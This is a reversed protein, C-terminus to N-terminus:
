SREFLIAEAKNSIKQLLPQLSPIEVDEENSTKEDNKKKKNIKSLGYSYVIPAIAWVILFIALSLCFRNFFQM